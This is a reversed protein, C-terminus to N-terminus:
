VGDGLINTKELMKTLNVVFYYM